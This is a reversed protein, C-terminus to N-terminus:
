DHLYSMLYVASRVHPDDNNSINTIQMEFVDWVDDEIYLPLNIPIFNTTSSTTWCIQYWAVEWKTLNFLRICTDSNSSNSVAVTVSGWYDGTNLIIMRDWSMSIGNLEIWTWLNWSSNTIWMWVNQTCPIITDQQQFWGFMHWTNAQRVMGTSIIDWFTNFGAYCVSLATILGLFYIALKKM